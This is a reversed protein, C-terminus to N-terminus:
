FLSYQGDNEAQFDSMGLMWESTDKEIREEKAEEVKVEKKKSSKVAKEDSGSVKRYGFSAEYDYKKLLEKITEASLTESLAFMPVNGELTVSYGEKQLKEVLAKKDM